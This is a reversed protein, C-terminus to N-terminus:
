AAEKANVYLKRAHGAGAIVISCMATSLGALLGIVNVLRHRIIIFLAVAVLALRAYYKLFFLVKAPGLPGTFVSSIDRKLWAFSLLSLLGGALVAGAMAPSHLLAAAAFVMVCAFQLGQIKSVSLAPFDNAM